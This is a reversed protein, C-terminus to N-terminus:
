KYVQGRPRVRLVSVVRAAEDVEYVVRYSGVRIRYLGQLNGVLAKCGPPQPDDQLGVLRDLV